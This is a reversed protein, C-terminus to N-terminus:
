DEQAPRRRVRADYLRAVDCDMLDGILESEKDWDQQDGYRQYDQGNETHNDWASVMKFDFDFDGGGYAPFMMWTAAHYGTEAQYKTWADIGAM